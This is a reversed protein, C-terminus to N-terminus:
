IGDITTIIPALSFNYAAAFSFHRCQEEDAFCMHWKLLGARAAKKSTLLWCDLLEKIWIWMLEVNVQSLLCTPRSESEGWVATMKQFYFVLYYRNIPLIMKDLFMDVYINYTILSSLSSSLIILPHVLLIVSAGHSTDNCVRESPLCKQPPVIISSLQTSVAAWQTSPWSQCLM